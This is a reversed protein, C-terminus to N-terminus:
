DDSVSRVENVFAQMLDRDKHGPSREIGSAVDVAFPRVRRIAEAVNAPRLGGALFLRVSGGLSASLRAALDWDCTRGSGGLRAPDYADLLHGWAPSRSLDPPEQGPRLRWALLCPRALGAALEPGREDHIQLYDLACAAAVADSGGISEGAFVGVLKPPALGLRIAEDRAADSLRRAQDLGLRRPSAAVFNLGLYEVGLRVALRLDEERTFGCFKIATM